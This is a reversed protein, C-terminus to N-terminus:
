EATEPRIRNCTLTLAECDLLVSYGETGGVELLQYRIRHADFATQAATVNMEGVTPRSGDTEPIMRAGGALYGALGRTGTSEWGGAKMLNQLAHDAFRADAPSAGRPAYPLLCHALACVKRKRDILAIAVCSGLTAKLFGQSAVKIEGILVHQLPAGSPTTSDSM